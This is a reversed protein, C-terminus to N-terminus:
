AGEGWGPGKPWDGGGVSKEINTRGVAGESTARLYVQVCGPVLSVGVWHLENM